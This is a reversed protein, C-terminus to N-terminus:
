LLDLPSKINSQSIDTIQTYLETTKISQHGLLKQIYRIDTGNELLHTAFSHRLTHPTVKKNLCVRKATNKVIKQVSTESYMKNRGLGEFLFHKPKYHTYYTRLEKILHKSLMVVRDKKGKSQRVHILKNESDIDTIKLNLLERLRLGGGYLLMIICRHKKNFSSEIMKKVEQKTLYVPIKREKRKPYLYLLRLEKGCMLKFFKSISALMQKQYSASIKEKRILYHIYNEINKESIVELDYQKFDFLFKKICHVYIKISNPAYRQTELKSTYLKLQSKM